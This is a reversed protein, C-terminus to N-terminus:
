YTNRGLATQFTNVITSLDGVEGDTLGEGVWDFQHRRVSYSSVNDFVSGSGAAPMYLPKVSPLVGTNVNTNTALKVGDKWINYNTSSTRNYGFLGIGSPIVAPSVFMRTASGDNNYFYSYPDGVQNGGILAWFPNVDWSDATGFDVCYAGVVSPFDTGLYTFLTSNNLTMTTALYMDNTAWANTGNPTAGLTNFTWGGTFTIDYTGPNKGELKHANQVGGVYPYMAITKSYLGAAKLDVFLTDTADTITDNITGGAAEVADLYAQADPDLPPNTPTVTNSDANTAGIDNTATVTCKVSTGVDDNVLVYSSNTASGIPSGDRKWQYTYIITATGTWSGDSCSLTEGTETTGTIAPAVTNVPAEGGGGSTGVEIGILWDGDAGTVGYHDALAQIWSGGIPGTVGVADAWAQIWSGGVPGTAGEQIAITHMWSAGTAGTAGLNEAIQQLLSM